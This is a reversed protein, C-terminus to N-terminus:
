KQMISAQRKSILGRRDGKGIRGSSLVDAM